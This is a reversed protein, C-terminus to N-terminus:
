FSSVSVVRRTEEFFSFEGGERGLESESVVRALEVADQLASAAGVGGFPPMAHAADGIVVVRESSGVQDNDEWGSMSGTGDERLASVVEWVGSSGGVWEKEIAELM